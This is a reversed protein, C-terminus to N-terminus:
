KSSNQEHIIAAYYLSVEFISYINYINFLTHQAGRGCGSERDTNQQLVVVFYTRIFTFNRYYDTLNRNDVKLLKSFTNPADSTSTGYQCCM